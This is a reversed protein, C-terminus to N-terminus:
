NSEVQARSQLVLYPQGLGMNCDKFHYMHTFGNWFLSEIELTEAGKPYGSEFGPATVKDGIGYKPSPLNKTRKRMPM